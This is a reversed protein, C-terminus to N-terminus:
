GNIDWHYVTKQPKTLKAHELIHSIPTPQYVTESGLDRGVAAEAELVDFHGVVIAGSGQSDIISIKRGEDQLKVAATLVEGLSEYLGQTVGSGQDTVVYRKM